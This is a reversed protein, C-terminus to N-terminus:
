YEEPQAPPTTSPKGTTVTSPKSRDRDLATRKSPEFARFRAGDCPAVGVFAAGTISFRRSINV